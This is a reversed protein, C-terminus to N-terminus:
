FTAEDLEAMLSRALAPNTESVAAIATLGIAERRNLSPRRNIHSLILMVTIADATDLADETGFHRDITERAARSLNDM